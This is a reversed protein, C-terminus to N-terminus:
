RARRKALLILGQVDSEGLKLRAGLRTLFAREEAGLEKDAAAITCASAFARQALEPDVEGDLLADAQQPDQLFAEVETLKDLGLLKALFHVRAAEAPDLSGDSWAAATSAALLLKQEDSWEAM